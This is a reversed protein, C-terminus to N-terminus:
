GQLLVEIAKNLQEDVAEEGEEEKVNEVEVDPKLGEDKVWTGNPTLWKATTIHLGAGRGGIDEAQQITGKGFSTTGVLKARNHDRLAGALIESASASGKDILVVIPIELLRGKRNVSYTEEQGRYNVQKMVVGKSIFESALNIAGQMYGGPNSRVDLVVGKLSAQRNLIKDVAEDWQKDTTDGFRMLQLHAVTDNEVFDVKVTPVIITGRTITADFSETEKEHLLTLTVQSGKPGRIKEVAEPLTMGQTDTDIGRAEDKIYLILDGAEVGADEAPMGKLPSIVVLQNDKNYGLRIGVGEFTGSLEEKTEENEEPPLFITYPDGTANTLGQISGYFMQKRDLEEKQLFKTELQDWVQWYLSFDINKGDPVSTNLFQAKQQQYQKNEWYGRLWWGAGGVLLLFAFTLVVKRVQKLKLVIRM